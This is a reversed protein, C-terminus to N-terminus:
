LIEIKEMPEFPELNIRPDYLLRLQVVSFRRDRGMNSSVLSSVTWRKVFLEGDVEALFKQCMNYMFVQEARLGVFSPCLAHETGPLFRYEGAKMGFSVEREGLEEHWLRLCTKRGGTYYLLRTLKNGEVVADVLISMYNDDSETLDTGDYELCREYILELNDSEVRFLNHTNEEILFLLGAATEIRAIPRSTYALGSVTAKKGLPRKRLCNKESELVYYLDNEYVFAEHYASELKFLFDPDGSIDGNTDYDIRHVMRGNNKRFVGFVKEKTFRASRFAVFNPPCEIEWELEYTTPLIPPLYGWIDGSLDSLRDGLFHRIREIRAAILLSPSSM